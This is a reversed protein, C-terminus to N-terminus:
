GNLQEFLQKIFLPPIGEGIIRRIYAESASEPLPWDDPLSMIKMIEYLTLARPDSYLMEGNSDLGMERGPHVNGQSSIKRNDMTVTFAPSEWRQRSYTNKYGKIRSGDEKRPYHIPNDFASKGSPTYMMAEVQRFVHTPPINWKSIELAKNRREEYLPFLEKFKEIPIDKVFPDIPPIWGIAEKLTVTKDSVQPIRWIKKLDNRTLLIIMRERSQPVHFNETNIINISIHYSSELEGKVFDILKVRDGEITADTNLFNPVNEILAYKPKIDKIANVAPIILLNRNDDENQQGVTSMGQCPPTAMILNVKAARAEKIIERYISENIIDGRIMKSKPYIHSYIKARREILENAVVVPMGIEELYAEAVGINAFLSLVNYAPQVNKQKMNIKAIEIVEEALAEEENLVASVQNALWLKLLEREDYNLIDAILKIQERKIPREGREIRSYMPVDIELVAALERQLLKREERLAKIKDAFLM